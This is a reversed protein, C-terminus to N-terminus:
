KRRNRRGRPKTKKRNKSQNIEVKRKEAYNMFQYDSMPVEVVENRVVTPLLEKDQTKYHSVLGLIRSKFLEPNKIELGSADLFLSM